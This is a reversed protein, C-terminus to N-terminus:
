GPSLSDARPLRGQPVSAYGSEECDDGLKLPCLMVTKKFNQGFFRLLCFLIRPYVDKRLSINFRFNTRRLM